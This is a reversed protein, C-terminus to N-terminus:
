FRVKLSGRITFPAGFTIDQPGRSNVIYESDFLNEFNLAAEWNDRRYFLAADLRTYAPIKYDPYDQLLFEGGPREDVFYVGLGFGLGQLDGSQIRYTTWLNASNHPTFIVPSGVEYNNDKTIIADIYSYGATVDWGPLIEGAVTFDIGRSRQEGVQISFDEDVQNLPDPTLVNAKTIQYAALVASLKGDLFDAKIGAEYQTGRQPAFAEGTRSRGGTDDTDLSRSYNAYLSLPKIPQYVIGIRPSFTESYNIGVTGGVYDSAKVTVWDFRGAVVLILNDLFKIQDQLFVGYADTNYQQNYDSTHPTDASPRAIDYDPNSIDLSPLSIGFGVFRQRNLKTDVGFLAQHSISGTNFNALLGTQTTYTEYVYRDNGFTRDIFQDDSLVGYNIGRIHGVPGSSFSLVNRLQLNKNFRHEFNYGGQVTRNDTHGDDPFDYNPDRGLFSGNLARVGTSDSPQNLYEFNLTLKTDDSIDWAITPAIFYNQSSSFNQSDEADQLAINLRYRLNRNSTLPGSLDATGRYFSDSGVNLGLEYFPEFLPQKTTINIIGGLGGAGFLVAAPGRLVEVQEVNSFDAAGSLGGNVTQQANFGRITINGFNQQVGSLNELASNIDTINRDKIVQQPVIQITNPIDRLPTDTRTGVSTQSPNYGQDQEGTVVLEIPENSEPSPQNPQTQNGPQEQPQTPQTQPQQARSAATAVSFIIGDDPSDFLEVIPVGIEGTVSVRITNADFNIVTIESVGAIPKTSRFTFAEGSLLRLQANPIDAIFNNGNSRNIVQLQQGKLTQLIVEVGKNTPNAKVSTVQVVEGQQSQPPPNQQEIQAFWEKVTRATRDLEQVSHIATVQKAQTPQIVVAIFFCSIFLSRWLKMVGGM